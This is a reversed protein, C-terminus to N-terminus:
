RKRNDKHKPSHKESRCQCSTTALRGEGVARLLTKRTKKKYIPEVKAAGWINFNPEEKDMNLLLIIKLFVLFLVLPVTHCTVDNGRDISECVM